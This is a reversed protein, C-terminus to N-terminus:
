PRQSRFWVLGTCASSSPGLSPRTPGTRDNQCTPFPTAAMLSIAQASLGSEQRILLHILYPAAPRLFRIAMTALMKQALIARVDYPGIRSPGPDVNHLSRSISVRVLKRLKSRPQSVGLRKPAVGPPGLKYLAPHQYSDEISSLPTGSGSREEDLGTLPNSRLSRPEDNRANGVRPDVKWATMLDADYPRLLDIPLQEPNGPEIAM